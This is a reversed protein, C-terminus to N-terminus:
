VAKRAILALIQNLSIGWTYASYDTMIDNENDEYRVGYDIGTYKIGLGAIKVEQAFPKMETLTKILEYRSM